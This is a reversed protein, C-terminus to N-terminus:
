RFRAGDIAQKDRLRELAAEARCAFDCFERPRGDKGKENKRFWNM